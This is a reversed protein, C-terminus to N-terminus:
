KSIKTFKQVTTNNKFNIEIFYIGDALSSIDINEVSSSIPQEILIKSYLDRIRIFGEGDFNTSVISISNYAPNPFIAFESKVNQIDSINPVPMTQFNWSERGTVAQPLKGYSNTFLGADIEMYYKTGADLPTASSFTVVNKNVTLSSAPFSAVLQDNDYRRLYISGTHSLISQNFKIEFNAATSIGFAGDSPVLMIIKPIVMSGTLDFTDQLRIDKSSAGVMIEFKGPNFTWAALNVDYYSFARLNLSVHATKTQGPTMELKSFAKLEKFPRIVSPHIERVYVQAVEAGKVAGTNQIDYSVNVTTFNNSDDPVIVLNSYNFNTYSLGFGFPFLPSVTTATDYYRYGVFLGEGYTVRGDGNGDYYYNYVPNDEWKKEFSYPLKGSPNVNGFLIESIATGGEQGPYGAHVLAKTSDIWGTTAVGGGAFLVVVTKPNVHSVAKILEQQLLPLSYDRDSGEGERDSGFGVCVIAADSAAAYQVAQSGSIDFLTYGLRAEAIQANEYYEMTINYVSDAVLDVVKNLTVTAHDSWKEVITTNNIKLRFGDDGAATFLYEGTQGPKICGTWRVSFNDAGIGSVGPSGSWLFNVFTDIRIVSVGTLNKNNFYHGVLGAHSLTSDTYFVSTGYGPDNNGINTSVNVTVGNGLLNKIGTAVSVSHFPSTYSSGGGAVYSDALDGVVAVSNISSKNFPLITDQNKLLVIGGRALDLAVTANQPDDLPISTNTQNRDFFGFKFLEYLIRRIKEDIVSVKLNGNNLYPMLIASNMNDGSPMELDLGGTAAQLGNHTAGWDSMIFGKFDWDSKLVQNELYNSQTCHIGNLLNYATMVAGANADKVAAEFAPFYIERLTREDVDSSIDYRNWEQNNAAYHKATAMVGESQVGNIYSVAMQSSLYPDEGFYEFNRGCMPARYINLGPALLIHVGRSRADRGLGHGLKNVLSTDWTASNLIGAPYATTQGWTRVGVPGDSMKIEPVALRSINRIYFSNLGGIYDLKEQLTMRSLLDIVREEVPMNPDKYKPTQSFGPLIFLFCGVFLSIFNKIGM